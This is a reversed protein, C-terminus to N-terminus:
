KEVLQWAIDMPSAVLTEQGTHHDLLVYEATISVFWRRLDGASDALRKEIARQGREGLM